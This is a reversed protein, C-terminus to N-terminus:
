SADLALRFAVEHPGAFQRCPALFDTWRRREDSAIVRRAVIVGDILLEMRWHLTIPSPLTTCQAYSQAVEGADLARNAFFRVQDIPSWLRQDGYALPVGPPPLETLGPPGLLATDVLADDVYLRASDPFPALRDVVVSFLSWPLPGDLRYVFFLISTAVGGSRVLVDVYWQHAGPGGVGRLRVRVGTTADLAEFINADWLTSGPITPYGIWRMWWQLTWRDMIGAGLPAAIYNALLATTSGIPIVRCYSGEPSYDERDAGLDGVPILPFRGPIESPVPGAPQDLKWWLLPNDSAPWGSPPQLPALARGVTDLTAGVLDFTTLDVIQRVETRDGPGVLAGRGPDLAGLAFVRAGAPAGAAAVRGSRAGREEDFWTAGM